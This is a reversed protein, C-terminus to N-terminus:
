FSPHIGEILSLLHQHHRSMEVEEVEVEQEVDWLFRAYLALTYSDSSSVKLAQKFYTEARSADKYSKWILDAYMCLVTADFPSALIAREFYGEARAFDGRVEKVFIAYNGLYLASNPNAKIMRRYRLERRDIKNNPDLSDSGDDDDDRGRYGRGGGRGYAKSGGGSGGGGGVGCGEEVVLYSGTRWEFDAEEREEADCLGGFVSDNVAKRKPAAMNMVDTDKLAGTMKRTLDDSTAMSVSSSRSVILRVTRCKPIQCLLESDPSPEKSHWIWSDLMPRSPIRLPM